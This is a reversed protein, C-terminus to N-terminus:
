AVNLKTREKASVKESGHRERIQDMSYKGRGRSKYDSPRFYWLKKKPAWKFGAEKLIERHPRTDGHLWVWAGCIEIELGLGIIKNLAESIDEGYQANFGETTTEVGSKDKLADYAQNIMKMMELGAPNRDPHYQSCAKRYALKIIEPNYEGSIGLISLADTIKM